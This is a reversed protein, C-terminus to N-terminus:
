KNDTASSRISQVVLTAFAFGRICLSVHRLNACQMIKEFQLFFLSFFSTFTAASVLIFQGCKVKIWTPLPLRHFWEFLQFLILCSFCFTQLQYSFPVHFQSAALCLRERVARSDYMLLPKKGEKLRKFGSLPPEQLMYDTLTLTPQSLAGPRSDEFSDSIPM